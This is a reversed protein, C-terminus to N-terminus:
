SGIKGVREIQEPRLALTTITEGYKNCFEVEYAKWPEDFVLVVVGRMGAKLRKKTVDEKLEVVDLVEIEVVERGEKKLM